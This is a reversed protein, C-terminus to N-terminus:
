ARSAGIYSYRSCAQADVAPMMARLRFYETGSESNTGISAYAEQTFTPCPNVPRASAAWDPTTVVGIDM